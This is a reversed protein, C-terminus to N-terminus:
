KMTRATSSYWWTAERHYNLRKNKLYPPTVVFRADDECYDEHDDDCVPTSFHLLRGRVMDALGEMLVDGGDDGERGRTAGGGSSVHGIGSIWTLVDLPHMMEEVINTERLAALIAARALSSPADFASGCGGGLVAAEVLSRSAIALSGAAAEMDGGTGSRPVLRVLGDVFEQPSPGNLRWGLARLVEAEADRVESAGYQGRCVADAVFDADAGVGARCKLASVLCAVFHLQFSRRSRLASSAGPSSTSLFRDFYSLGICSVERDISCADVIGYSWVIMTRRDDRLHPHSRLSDCRARYHVSVEQEHMFRLHDLLYPAGDNDTSPLPPRQPRLVNASITTPSSNMTTDMTTIKDHPKHHPAYSATHSSINNNNHHLQFFSLM